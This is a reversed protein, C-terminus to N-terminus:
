DADATKLARRVARRAEGDAVLGDALIAAVTTELAEALKEITTEFIPRKGSEWQSVAPATVGCLQALRSQSLGRKERAHKLFGPLLHVGKGDHRKDNVRM